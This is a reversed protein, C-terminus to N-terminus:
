IIGERKLEDLQGAGLGLMSGYVESNHQGHLPASKVEVPSHELRVPCGPMTFKGRVPHDITVIMGREKMHPDNLLEVSDLVAPDMAVDYAWSFCLNTWRMPTPKDGLGTEVAELAERLQRVRAAPLAAVPFVIGDRHYTGVASASLGSQSTDPMAIM